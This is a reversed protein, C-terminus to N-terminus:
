SEDSHRKWFIYYVSMVMMIGFVALVTGAVRQSGAELGDTKMAEVAGIGFGLLSLVLVFIWPALVMVRGSIPGVRKAHGNVVKAKREAEAFLHSPDRGPEVIELDDILARERAGNHATDAVRVKEAPANFDPLGERVVRQQAPGATPASSAEHSDIKKQLGTLINSVREAVTRSARALDEATVPPEAAAPSSETFTSQEEVVHTTEAPAEYAMPPAEEVPAYTAPSDPAAVDAGPPLPLEISPWIASQTKEALRRVAEAIEGSPAPGSRPAEPVDDNAQAIPPTPRARQPAEGNGFDMEPTVMPTPASPPGSPHHLFLTKEAARRRVLADVVIVRGHLRAKRWLDFANAAGLYDGSNLLRVIDSDRLQGLSINFALSVLADFQGQMLPAYIMNSVANEISKLDYLLLEDADKPTITLGERATRVHGYGITWRGDPLRVATERFGEFSKILQLGAPSIRM